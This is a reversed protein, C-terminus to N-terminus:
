SKKAIPIHLPVGHVSGEPFTSIFYTTVHRQQFRWGQELRILKDEYSGTWYRYHDEGKFQQIESLMWRGTATNGDIDIVGSHMM